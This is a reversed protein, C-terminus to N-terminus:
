VFPNRIKYYQVDELGHAKGEKWFKMGAKELVRISAINAKATRGVVELIHLESFGYNLTAIAAETAYGKGWTMKFLRFGLDITEEENYRLGCWGIPVNNEKLYVAWRGFGHTKYQDYNDIFDEVEEITLFPRDGTHKLVDPDDNLEKLWSADSLAWERFLLRPSEFLIPKM